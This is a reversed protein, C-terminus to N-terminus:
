FSWERDWGPDGFRRPLAGPAPYLKKISPFFTIQSLMEWSFSQAPGLILLNNFSTNEDDPHSIGNMDTEVSRAILWKPVYILM